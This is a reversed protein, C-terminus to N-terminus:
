KVRLLFKEERALLLQRLQALLDFPGLLVLSGLEGPDFLRSVVEVIEGGLDLVTAGFDIIIPRLEGFGFVFDVFSTDRDLAFAGGQASGGEHGFGLGALLREISGHLDLAFLEGTEPCFEVGLATLREHEAAVDDVAFQAMPIGDARIAERYPGVAPHASPELLLETGDGDGAATVTTWSHEGMPINHKVEFGLTNTYFDLAHAQDDVFVSALSIRMIGGRSTITGPVM